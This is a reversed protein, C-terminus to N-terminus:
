QKPKIQNYFSNTLFQMEYAFAEETESNLEMGAWYMINLTTHFMEHAVVGQDDISAMWIIPSKGDVVGFSVGRANFDSATVTSDLNDQVYKTAFAVDETILVTADIDFTSGKLTIVQYKTLLHENNPILMYCAVLLPAVCCIFIITKSVTNM